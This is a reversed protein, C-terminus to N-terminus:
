GTWSACHIQEGQSILSYKLLPQLHEYCILGGVRGSPTDVVKLTSADGRTHFSKERNSPFLKRHVNLIEGNAGITVLSNYIEM